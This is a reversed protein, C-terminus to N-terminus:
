KSQCCGGFYGLRSVKAACGIFCTTTGEVENHAATHPSLPPPLFSNVPFEFSAFSPLVELILITQSEEDEREVETIGSPKVFPDVRQYRFIRIRNVVLNKRPRTPLSTWGLASIKPPVETSM